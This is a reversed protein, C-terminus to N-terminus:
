GPSGTRGISALPPSEDPHLFVFAVAAAAGAALEAILYIGINSWAFINMFAGGIAVAPNFAGGSIGGVVLAGVTVTFGIAWGYFSNGETAKATAVNLVVFVLAFTFLFEAVLSPGVELSGNLTEVPMAPKMYRVALWAVTAATVQVVWYAVAQPPTARGRLLVGLTVAPNYHGGSIHGGAYIMVALVSGIAVPALVGAGPEIVVMGVTFALFFTGILEVVLARPNM